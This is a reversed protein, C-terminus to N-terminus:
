SGKVAAADIRIINGHGTITVTAERMGAFKRLRVPLDLRGAKDLTAPRWLFQLMDKKDMARLIQGLAQWESSNEPILFITGHREATLLYFHEASLLRSFTEPMPLRNAAITGRYVGTLHYQKGKARGSKGMDRLGSSLASEPLGSLAMMTFLGTRIFDRREM